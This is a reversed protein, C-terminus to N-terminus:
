DNASFFRDTPDGPGDDQDEITLRTRAAPSMGLRDAARLIVEAQGRAVALMPHAVLQDMSGKTTMGERAVQGLANQYLVWSLCYITLVPADAATFFGPPMAAVVRDWEEAAAGSVARPRTLEPVPRPERKGIPRRGPNGTLRKLASPQPQPGRAGM